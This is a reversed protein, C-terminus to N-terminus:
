AVFFAYLLSYLVSMYISIFLVIMEVFLLQFPRLLFLRLRESLPRMDLDQETVFTSDGTEKRLKVARKALIKPAYTEPVTFVLLIYIVASMILQIWYLWRWGEADSLFGGILPGIAPGLFPAASFAKFLTLVLYFTSRHSHPKYDVLNYGLVLRGYSNRARRDEM